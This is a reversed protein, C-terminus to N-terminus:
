LIEKSVNDILIKNEIVQNREIRSNEIYSNLITAWPAIDIRGKLGIIGNLVVHPGIYFSPITKPPIELIASWDHERLLHIYQECFEKAGGVLKVRHALNTLFFAIEPDVYIETNPMVTVAFVQELVEFEPEGLLKSTRFDNRLYSMLTSPRQPFSQMRDQAYHRLDTRTDFGMATKRPLSFIGVSKNQSKLEMALEPLYYENKKHRRLVYTGVPNPAIKRSEFISLLESKTYLKGRISVEQSPSLANIDPNPVVGIERGYEDRIVRAYNPADIDRITNLFVERNIVELLVNREKIQHLYEKSLPEPIGPFSITGSREEPTRGIESQEVVAIFEGTQPERVIRGYNFPDEEIVSAITMEYGMRIHFLVMEKLLEAPITPIDSALILIYQYEPHNLLFEKAERAVVTAGTGDDLGDANSYYHRVTPIRKEILAVVDAHLKYRIKEYDTQCQDKPKPRHGVRVLIQEAVQGNLLTDFILDLFPKGTSLERTAPKALADLFPDGITWLPTMRSGLGAAPIVALVRKVLRLQAYEDM